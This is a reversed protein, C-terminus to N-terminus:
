VSRSGNLDYATFVREQLGLRKAAERWPAIHPAKLHSDLSEHNPWLESFRILGPDFLDEAVDYIICGDKNRTAEVFEQLHPKIADMSSPPFRLFGLVVVKVEM